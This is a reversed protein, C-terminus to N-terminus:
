RAIGAVAPVRSRSEKKKKFWFFLQFSQRQAAHTVYDIAVQKRKTNSLTLSHHKKKRRDEKEKKRKKVAKRKTNSLTLCHCGEPSV